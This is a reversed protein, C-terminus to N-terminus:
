SPFLLVFLFSKVMPICDFTNGHIVKDSVKIYDLKQYFSVKELRSELMIRKKALIAFGSNQRLLQGNALAM